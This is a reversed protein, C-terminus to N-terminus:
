VRALGNLMLQEAIVFDSDWDIDFSSLRDLLYLYPKIGIRDNHSAYVKASALFAASNVEHVPPLTQTRPWKEIKRDYNLPGNDNWLFSFLPTTTMISDYGQGLACQYTSVIQSYCDSGVFPSTVHTWLIHGTKILDQVHYILADTSTTGSALEDVRRHLVLKDYSISNAFELIEEDNTSLIIRDIVPCDLLQGLKVEILGHEFHGFPRINKRPVRESGKRCPLFATVLDDDLIM